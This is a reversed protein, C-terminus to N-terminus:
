NLESEVLLILKDLIDEYQAGNDEQGQPWSSAPEEERM